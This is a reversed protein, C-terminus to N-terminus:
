DSDNTTQETITWDGSRVMPLVVAITIFLAVLLAAVSLGMGWFALGRGSQAPNKSVQFIGFLCLFFGPLALLLGIGCALSLPLGVLSLIFGWLCLANAPRPAHLHPMRDPAFVPPRM